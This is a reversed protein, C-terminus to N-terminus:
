TATEETNRNKLARVARTALAKFAEVEKELAAIRRLGAAIRRERDACSTCSEVVAIPACDIQRELERILADETGTAKAADRTQCRLCSPM